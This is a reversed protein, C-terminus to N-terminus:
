RGLSLYGFLAGVGLVAGFVAGVTAGQSGYYFWGGVGGAAIGALTALFFQRALAEDDRVPKKETDTPAAQRKPKPTRRAHM